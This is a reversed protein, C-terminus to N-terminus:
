NENPGATNRHCLLCVAFDTCKLDCDM